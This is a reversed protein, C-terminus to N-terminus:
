FLSVIKKYFNLRSLTANNSVLFVKLNQKVLLHYLTDLAGRVPTNGHWLVGDCDFIFFKYNGIIKGFNEFNIAEM